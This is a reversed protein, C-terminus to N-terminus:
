DLRDSEGKVDLWNINEKTSRLQEGMNSSHNKHWGKLSSKIGKIKGEFCLREIQCVVFDETTKFLSM